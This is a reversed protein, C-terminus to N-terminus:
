LILLLSTTVADTLLEGEFRDGRRKLPRVIGMSPLVVSKFQAFMLTVTDEQVEPRVMEANKPSPKPQESISKAALTTSTKTVVATQLSDTAM